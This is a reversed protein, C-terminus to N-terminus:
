VSNLNTPLLLPIIWWQLATQLRILLDGLISSVPATRKRPIWSVGITASYAFLLLLLLPERKTM